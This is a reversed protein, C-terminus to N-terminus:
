TVPICVRISNAHSLPMNRQELITVYRQQHIRYVDVVGKAIARAATGSPPFWMNAFCVFLLLSLFLPLVKGPARFSRQDFGNQFGHRHVFSKVAVTITACEAGTRTRTRAADVMEPAPEASQGVAMMCSATVDALSAHDTSYSQRM